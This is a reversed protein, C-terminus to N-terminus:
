CAWRRCALSEASTKCRSASVSKQTLVHILNRCSVTRVEILNHVTGGQSYQLVKM